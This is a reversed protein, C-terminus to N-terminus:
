PSLLNFTFPSPPTNSAENSLLVLAGDLGMEQKTLVHLKGTALLTNELKERNDRIVVFLTGKTELLTTVGPFDKIEVPYRGTYFPLAGRLTEDPKYAYLPHDSPVRAIVKQCFPVFSKHRDLVPFISVAIFALVIIISIHVSIWYHKMKGRLLYWLAALPMLTVFLSIAVVSVFFHDVTGIPYINKFYFYVPLGAVGVAALLLGFLWAFVKGMRDLPTPKLTHDIYLSTLMSIPALIPMLYLARKTSAVSLIAIGTFFWCKAFLCGKEPLGRDRQTESFAHHLAPILLISWPLFAIPFQTLYYYFPNHHGSTSRSIGGIMSSPLFRQLHNQFLFVNLHGEGGHRWLAVFWPLVMIVFILVGLWLRMRFLEKLHKETILFVLISLGPIVVGIFGKVFFALTCSLCLLVTYFLKKTDHESLYGAMFLGMASIVFFTLTSDVVVWHATRFYSQATALTLGSFLAVRSGFLFNAILFTALVAAIAFFASPLRAVKDSAGGFIRFTLALFGYYLPPHELFPKQNLMPVAWNGTAAMERAIEAVRPEDPTWLGHNAIGLSFLPVVVILLLFFHKVMQNTHANTNPKTEMIM